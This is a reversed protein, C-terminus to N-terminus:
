EYVAIEVLNGDPDYCYHSTMKGLAGEKTVPGNIIEVGSATLHAAVAQPSGGTIFCLDESGAAETTATTWAPDIELAGIPRLNIKQNGFSLATRGSPGFKTITMGLVAAYWAATAEVDRCNIVIHDFRNVAFSNAPQPPRPDLM